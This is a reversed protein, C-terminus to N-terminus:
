AQPSSECAESTQTDASGFVSSVEHALAVDCCDPVVDDCAFVEVEIEAAVVKWVALVVVPTDVVWPDLEV